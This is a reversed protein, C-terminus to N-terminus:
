VGPAVEERVVPEQLLTQFIFFAQMKNLRWNGFWNGVLKWVIEL